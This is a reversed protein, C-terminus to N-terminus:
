QCRCFSGALIKGQYNCLDSHLIAKGPRRKRPLISRGQSRRCNVKSDGFGSFLVPAGTKRSLRGAQRAEALQRALQDIVVPDLYVNVLDRTKRFMQDIKAQALKDASFVQKQQQPHDTGLEAPRDRLV